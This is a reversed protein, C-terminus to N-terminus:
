ISRLFIVIGSTKAVFMESIEFNDIGIPIQICKNLIFNKSGLLCNQGKTISKNRNELDDARIINIADKNDNPNVNVNCNFLTLATDIHEYVRYEDHMYIM